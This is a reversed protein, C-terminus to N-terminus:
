THQSIDGFELCVLLLVSRRKDRSITRTGEVLFEDVLARSEEESDAAM